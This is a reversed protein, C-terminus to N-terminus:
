KASLADNMLELNVQDSRRDYCYNNFTTRENTHGAFRRISDINMGADILSSIVTKRTKHTSKRPIGLEDCYKYLAKNVASYGIPKENMSFIYGDSIASREEQTRRAIRIIRIAENTLQIERDGFEGKTHEVIEGTENRIMKTISITKGDNSIDDYTLARLEGIRLGTQFQFLVALATLPQKKHYGNEFYSWALEKIAKEESELFVQTSSDKKHTRRFMRKDIVVENFPNEKIYDKEVAYDLIQRMIIALNYYCKKTLQHERILSYAWKDLILKSIDTLPMDVIESGLYYKRWDSKLRMITTCANTHLSKFELWEPYIESITLQKKKALADYEKYMKYLIECLEEKSNKVIKKRGNDKSDDKIYTSWRGDKGQYIKYPHRNIVRKVESAKMYNLAAKYSITGYGKMFQMIEESSPMYDIEMDEFLTLDEELVQRTM